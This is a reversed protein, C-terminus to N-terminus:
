DISLHLGSAVLGHISGRPSRALWLNQTWVYFVIPIGKDDHTKSHDGGYVVIWFRVTLERGKKYGALRSIPGAASGEAAYTVSGALQNEQIYGM